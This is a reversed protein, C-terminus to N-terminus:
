DFMNLVFDQKIIQMFSHMIEVSDVRKRAGSRAFNIFIFNVRVSKSEGYEVDFKSRKQGSSATRISRRKGSDPTSDVNKNREDTSKRSENLGIFLRFM